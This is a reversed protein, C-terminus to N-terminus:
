GAGVRGRAVEPLRALAEVVGAVPQLPVVAAPRPGGDARDVAALDGREPRAAVVPVGAAGAAVVLSREADADRAVALVASPRNAEFREYAAELLEVVEPLHGLVLAQLDEGALDAFSVGRHAYSARLGPTTRLDRFRARLSAKAGAAAARARRSAGGLLDELSATLVHAGLGVEVREQIERVAARDDSASFLALVPADGHSPPLVAPARLSRLTRALGRGRRARGPLRLAPAASPADHLLVGAATCARALLLGDAPELGLADVESPRTAELLRLCLDATCACRPGATAERLFAEATWLLSAGRWEVLDRFSRGEVLPVRGWVRAWTHGAAEAAALGEGGLVQETTLHAM